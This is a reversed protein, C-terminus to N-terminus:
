TDIRILHALCFFFCHIIFQFPPPSFFPLTIIITDPKISLSIIIIALWVRRPKEKSGMSRYLFFAVDLFLSFPSFCLLYCFFLSFCVSNEEREARGIKKKKKWHTKKSKKKLFYGAGKKKLTSLYHTPTDRIQAYIDTNKPLNSDRFISANPSLSLTFHSFRACFYSWMSYLNTWNEKQPLFLIPGSSISVCQMLGDITMM